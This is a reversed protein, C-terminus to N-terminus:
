GSWPEYRLPRNTHLGLDEETDGSAELLLLLLLLEDDEPLPQGNEPLPLPLLRLLVLHCPPGVLTMVVVRWCVGEGDSLEVPLASVEEEELLLLLLLLM